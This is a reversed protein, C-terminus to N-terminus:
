SITAEAVLTATSPLSGSSSSRSTANARPSFLLEGGVLCLILLFSLLLPGLLFPPTFAAGGFLRLSFCGLGLLFFM